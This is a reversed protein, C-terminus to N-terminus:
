DTTVVIQEVDLRVQDDDPRAAKRAPVFRESRNQLLLHAFPCRYEVEILWRQRSSEGMAEAEPWGETGSLLGLVQEGGPMRCKVTRGAAQPRGIEERALGAHPPRIERRGAAVEANQGAHPHLAPWRPLFPDPNDLKRHTLSGHDRCLGGEGGIIRAIWTRANEQDIEQGIQQAIM